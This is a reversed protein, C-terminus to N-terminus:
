KRTLRGKKVRQHRAAKPDILLPRYIEVRDNPYLPTHLPKLQGFIGAKQVTLDIEPCRALLGSARIAQELTTGAAVQLRLVIQHDPLAYVVKVEFMAM